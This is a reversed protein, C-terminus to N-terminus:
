SKYIDNEKKLELVSAIEIFNMNKIYISLLSSSIQWGITIPLFHLLGPPFWRGHAPKQCFKGHVFSVVDYVTPNYSYLKLM